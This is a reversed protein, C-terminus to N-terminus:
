PSAMPQGLATPCDVRGLNKFLPILEAAPAFEHTSPWGPLTPSGRVLDLVRGVLRNGDEGFVRRDLNMGNIRLEARARNVEGQQLVSPPPSVGQLTSIFSGIFAARWGTPPIPQTPETQVLATELARKAAEHTAAKRRLESVQERSIWGKDAFYDWADRYRGSRAVKRELHERLAHAMIRLLDHHLYSLGKSIYSSELNRWDKGKLAMELIWDSMEDRASGSALLLAWRIWGDEDASVNDFAYDAILQDRPPRRQNRGRYAYRNMLLSTRGYDAMRRDGVELAVLDFWRKAISDRTNFEAATEYRPNYQSLVGFGEYVFTEASAKFVEFLDLYRRRSLERLTLMLSEGAGQQGGKVTDHLRWLRGYDIPVREGRQRNQDSFRVIEILSLAISQRIRFPGSPPSADCNRFYTTVANQGLRELYTEFAEAFRFEGEIPLRLIQRLAGINYRDLGSTFFTLWFLFKDQNGTLFERLTREEDPKGPSRLASAFTVLAASIQSSREPDMTPSADPGNNIFHDRVPRGLIEMAATPLDAFAPGGMLYLSLAVM